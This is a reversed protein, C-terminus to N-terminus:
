AEVEDYWTPTLSRFMIWDGASAGGVTYKFRVLDKLKGAWVASVPDGPDALSITKTGDADTGDGADESKKTFVRVTLTGSSRAVSQLSAQMNDGGRPFWPSYISYGSGDYILTQADFM